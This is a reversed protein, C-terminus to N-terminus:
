PRTCFQPTSAAPLAPANASFGPVRRVTVNCQPDVDLEFLTWVRTSSPEPVAPPTFLESARGPVNLEVRASANTFSGSSFGSYNHVHYKYTGVMLRTLTIVEPGFSSTDDVDLNAFPDALLRGKSSFYVHAGSPTYLHSDLDYPAAGWTLKM